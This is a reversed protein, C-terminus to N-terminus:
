ITQYIKVNLKQFYETKTEGILNVCFNRQIKYSGWNGGTGYENYVNNLKLRHM